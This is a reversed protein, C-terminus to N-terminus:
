YLDPRRRDDRELIISFVEKVREELRSELSGTGTEVICDGRELTDDLELEIFDPLEIQDEILKWDKPNLRLRIGERDSVEELAKEVMAMVSEKEPIYFFIKGITLIVIEAIREKFSYLDERWRGKLDKLQSILGNLGEILENYRKLVVKRGEEKGELFGEKHGDGFGKAKGEKYGEDYGAKFGERKGEDFGIKKGEHFGLDHAKKIVSELEKGDVESDEKPLINKEQEINIYSDIDILCFAGIQIENLEKNKFVKKKHSSKKM